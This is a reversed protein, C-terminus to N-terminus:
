IDKFVVKCMDYVIFSVVSVVIFVEMEVGIFGVIIVKVEIDVVYLEKNLFLSVDVGSLNLFYCLFIFIM